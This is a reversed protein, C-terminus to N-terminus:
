LDPRPTMVYKLCQCHEMETKKSNSNVSLILRVVM